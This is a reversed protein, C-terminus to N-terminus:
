GETYGRASGKRRLWQTADARFLMATAALQCAYSIFDAIAYSRGVAVVHPMSFWMTAISYATIAVYVWKAINSARSYIFFRFILYYLGALIMGLLPGAGSSGSAIAMNRLLGYHFLINGIGVIASALILRHFWRIAIPRDSTV